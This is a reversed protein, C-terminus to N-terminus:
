RDIYESVPSRGMDKNNEFWKDGSFTINGYNWDKLEFILVNSHTVILLDFEGEYKDQM